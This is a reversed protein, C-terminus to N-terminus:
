IKSSSRNNKTNHVIPKSCIACASRCAYSVHVHTRSFPRCSVRSNAENIKMKHQKLDEHQLLLEVALVVVVFFSSFFVRTSLQDELIQNSNGEVFEEDIAHLLAEGTDVNYSLLMEIMEINEYEIALSFRFRSSSVAFVLSAIFGILLASRGLPDLCNINISTIPGDASNIIAPVGSAMDLYRRTTAMDGGLPLSLTFSVGKMM